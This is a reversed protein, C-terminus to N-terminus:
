APGHRLSPRKHFVWQMEWAVEMAPGHGGGHSPLKAAMREGFAEVWTCYHGLTCAMETFPPVMEPEDQRDVTLCRRDVGSSRPLFHISKMSWGRIAGKIELTLKSLELRLAAFKCSRTMPRGEGVAEFPSTTDRWLERSRGTRAGISRSVDGDELEPDFGLLFHISKMARGSRPLRSVPEPAIDRWFQRFLPDILPRVRIRFGHFLCKACLARAAVCFTSRECPGGAIRGKEVLPTRAPDRLSYPM